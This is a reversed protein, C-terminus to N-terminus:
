ELPVRQISEKWEVFSGKSICLNEGIHGIRITKKLPLIQEIENDRELYIHEEDFWYHANHCPYQADFGGLLDFSFLNQHDWIYLHNKHELMGTADWDSLPNFQPLNEIIFIVNGYRDLRIIKLNLHDFCWFGNLKSGSVQTIWSQPILAPLEISEGQESLTNDLFVIRQTEEFFIFPKQPQTLDLKKISGFSLKGNRYYLQQVADFKEITNSNWRYVNGQVDIGM